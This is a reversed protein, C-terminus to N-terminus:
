ECWRRIKSRSIKYKLLYPGKLLDQEKRTQYAKEHCSPNPLKINGKHNVKKPPKKTNKSM